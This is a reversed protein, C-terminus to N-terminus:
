AALHEQMAKLSRQLMLRKGRPNLYQRPSRRDKKNFLRQAVVVKEWKCLRINHSPNTRAVKFEEPVILGVPYYLKGLRGERPKPWKNRGTIKSPKALLDPVVVVKKGTLRAKTEELIERMAAHLFTERAEVEGQVFGYRCHKVTQVLLVRSTKLCYVVAMVTPRWTPPCIKTPSSRAKVPM